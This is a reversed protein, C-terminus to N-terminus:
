VRSIFLRKITPFKAGVFTSTVLSTGSVVIDNLM